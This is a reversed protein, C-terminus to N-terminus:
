RYMFYPKVGGGTNLRRSPFFFRPGIYSAELKNAAAAELDLMAEEELESSVLYAGHEHQV